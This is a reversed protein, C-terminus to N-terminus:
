RTSTLLNCGSVNCWVLLSAMGQDDDDEMMQKLRAERDKRSEWTSVSKNEGSKSFPDDGEAEEGDDDDGDFM